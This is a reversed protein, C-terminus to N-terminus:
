ETVKALPVVRGGIRAIRIKYLEKGAQDKIPREVVQGEALSSEAQAMVQKLITDGATMGTLRMFDDAARDKAAQVTIKPDNAVNYSTDIVMLKKVTEPSDLTALGPEMISEANTIHGRAIDDTFFMEGGVSKTYFERFDKSTRDRNKVVNVAQNRDTLNLRKMTADVTQDFEKPTKEAKTTAAKTVQAKARLKAAFANQLSTTETVDEEPIALGKPGAMTEAEELTTKPAITIEGTDQNQIFHKGIGVSEARALGRKALEEDSPAYGKRHTIMQEQRSLPDIVKLAETPPFKRELQGGLVEMAKPNSLIGPDITGLSKVATEYDPADNVVKYADMFKKEERKKKAAEFFGAVGEAVGGQLAQQRLDPGGQIITAM